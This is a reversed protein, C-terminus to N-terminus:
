TGPGANFGVKDVLESALKRNKAVDTLPTLDSKLAGFASVIPDLAIGGRIPHEYNQRAYLAQAADSVLWEALKQANARNPANKAMAFGSVNVHTGGGAFTPMIIKVATIWAKQEASGNAMLGFYYTNAIGIDCVGSAIDKAVDRDGGSPKKALNAKIGKLWEEAKAAGMRAVANAFLATNYIYQGDRICLKRKWKPNALDEYTLSQEKVRDKSAYIVRARLTASFWQGGADRYAAPVAADLAPSVIRQTIGMEAAQVLRSVDVTLLLDAPSNAGEALIREELGNQAFIVNVKVGTDKTFAELVPKILAPERATYLNVEQALAASSASIVMATCVASLMSRSM